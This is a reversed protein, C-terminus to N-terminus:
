PSGDSFRETGLAEELQEQTPPLHVKPDCGRDRKICERIATLVDDDLHYIGHFAGADTIYGVGYGDVCVRSQHLSRGQPDARPHLFVAYKVFGGFAM